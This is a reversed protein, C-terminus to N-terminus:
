SGWALLMGIVPSYMVRTFFAEASSVASMAQLGAYGTLMMGPMFAVGLEATIEGFVAFSGGAPIGRGAELGGLGAWLNVAGIFPYRRFEQGAIGGIFGGNVSPDNADTRVALAFAGTRQGNWSVGYGYVGSLTSRVDLNALSQDYVQQGWTIGGAGRAFGVAIPLALLMAALVARRMSKM